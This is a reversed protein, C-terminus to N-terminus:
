IFILTIAYFFGMTIANCFILCALNCKKDPSEPSKFTLSILFIDDVFYSLSVDQIVRLVKMLTFLFM